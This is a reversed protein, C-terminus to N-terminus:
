GLTFTQIGVVVQVTDVDVSIDEELLRGTLPDRVVRTRFVTGRVLATASPTTVQYNSSAGLTAVRSITIGGAQALSTLAGAGATQGLADLRVTTGADLELESGDAFTLLAAGPTGTQVQDGVGLSEGSQGQHADGGAGVVTVSESLVTLTARTPDAAPRAPAGEALPPLLALTLLALAVLVLWRPLPTM